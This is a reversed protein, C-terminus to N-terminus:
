TGYGNWSIFRSSSLTFVTVLAMLMYDYPSMQFGFGLSGAGAGCFGGPGGHEAEIGDATEDPGTQRVVM